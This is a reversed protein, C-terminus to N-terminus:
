GGASDDDDDDDGGGPPCLECLDIECMGIVEGSDPDTEIVMLVAM